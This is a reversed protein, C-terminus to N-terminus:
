KSKRQKNQSKNKL